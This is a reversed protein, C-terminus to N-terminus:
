SSTALYQPDYLEGAAPINTLSSYKKSLDLWRNLGDTNIAADQSYASKARDFSAKADEISVQSDEALIKTADEPHAVVWQASEAAAAMFKKVTKPKAKLARESSAFVQAPMDPFDEGLVSLPHMGAAEAKIDFPPVLMAGDVQGTTMAAFKAAMTGTAVFTVQSADVGQSDLYARALVEEGSGPGVIGVKKGVLDEASTIGATTELRYQVQNLLNGIMTMKSGAAAVAVVGEPLMAAVDAQGSAVAAAAEASSKVKVLEVELGHKEFIKQNQGATVALFSSGTISSVLTIKETSSGSSSSGSPSGCATATLLTCALVAGLLRAMNPRRSLNRFM